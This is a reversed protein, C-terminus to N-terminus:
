PPFRLMTKITVCPCIPPDYIERLHAPYVADEKTVVHCGYETIRRLEGSLDVSGEWKAISAALEPGVGHVRLLQDKSAALISPADGFHDLLQRVRVPGVGEIMNLAIFAESANM